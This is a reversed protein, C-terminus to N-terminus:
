DFTAALLISEAIKGMSTRSNMSQKRILEYAHKTSIRKKDALLEKAREVLKREELEREVIEKMVRLETNKLIVAAQSAVTEIMQIDERTFDYEYATYCNMVGILEGEVSMPMALLSVLGESLALDKNLFQPETRVDRVATPKKSVAVQGAIGKGLPVNSKEKYRGTPSHCARLVLENKKKDLLLISCITCGSMKATASVILALIDETYQKEMIAASIEAIGELFRASHDSPEVLAKKPPMADAGQM